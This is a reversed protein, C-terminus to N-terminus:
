WLGIASLFLGLTGAYARLNLGVQGGGSRVLRRGTTGRSASYPVIAGHHRLLSGGPRARAVRRRRRRRARARGRANRRAPATRPGSRASSRAAPASPRTPRRQIVPIRQGRRRPMAQSAWASTVSGARVEEVGVDHVGKRPVSVKSSILRPGPRARRASRRASPCRSGRSCGPSAATTRATRSRSSAAPARASPCRGPRAHDRAHREGEAEEAEVVQRVQRDQAHLPQRQHQEPQVPEPLPGGPRAAASNPASNACAPATRANGPKRCPPPWPATRREEVHDGLPPRRPRKQQPQAARQRQRARQDRRM